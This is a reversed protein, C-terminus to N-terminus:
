PKNRFLALHQIVTRSEFGGALAGTTVGVTSIFAALRFQDTFTIGMTELTPWTQMLGEPFIYLQIILMLAGNLIFLGVCALFISLYIVANAVALHETLIDKEKRPLFLSQVQVLYFSAGIISALAFIIATQNDMNLGVDWTEATFVLLITPAVAATALGPLSLPLLISRNRFLPIIVDKPHRFTMLIHFILTELMNGGHLEREPLHKARNQLVKREQQNFSPTGHRNERFTYPTMVRSERMRKHGLGSIHGLLHLLLAAGNWRVPSDLLRHPPLGRSTSSLKKTSLAIIRSVSSALGAEMRKRRSVLYVDTIVIVLDYPGEAMHQSAEDLFDSPRRPNDSELAITEPQHFIWRIGTADEMEKRTDPMLQAAFAELEEKDESRSYALLVGVNMEPSPKPGQAEQIDKLFRSSSTLARAFKTTTAVRSARLLNIARIFRFARFAPIVLALLTLWNEKLYQFPHAALFIKLIFELIFLIWITIVLYEQGPSLGRTVEVMFLWLWVLGLLFMPTELWAELKILLRFKKRKKRKIQTTVM